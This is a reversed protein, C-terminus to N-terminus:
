APDSKNTATQTKRKKAKQKKHHRHRYHRPFVRNALPLAGHQKSASTLVQRGESFRVLLKRLLRINHPSNIKSLLLRYTFSVERIYDKPPDKLQQKSKKKPQKTNPLFNLM